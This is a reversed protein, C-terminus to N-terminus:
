VIAQQEPWVLFNLWCGSNGLTASVGILEYGGDMAKKGCAESLLPAYFGTYDIYSDKDDYFRVGRYTRSSDTSTNDIHISKVKRSLTATWSNNGKAGLLISSGNKFFIEFGTTKWPKSTADQHMVIKTIARDAGLSKLLAFHEKTSPFIHTPAVLKGAPQLELTKLHQKNVLTLDGSIVMDLQAQLLKNM